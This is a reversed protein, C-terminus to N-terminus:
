LDTHVVCMSQLYLFILATEFRYKQKHQSPRPPYGSFFTDVCNECSFESQRGAYEMDPIIHGLLFSLNFTIASLTLRLRNKPSKLQTSGLSIALIVLIDM